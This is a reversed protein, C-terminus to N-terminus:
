TVIACNKVPIGFYKDIACNKGFDDRVKGAPYLM